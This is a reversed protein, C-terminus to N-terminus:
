MENIHEQFQLIITLDPHGNPFNHQMIVIARAIHDKAPIIDNMKFRLFAIVGYSIALDLHNKGLQQEM